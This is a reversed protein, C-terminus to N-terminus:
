KKEIAAVREQIARLRSADFKPSRDFFYLGNEEPYTDWIQTYCYGFMWENDLLIHCTAEFRAYFDDPNQPDSGYGWSSKRNLTNEAASKASVQPNWKFGGFESVWYPQGRYPVSWVVPKATTPTTPASPNLYAKWGPKGEHYARFKELGADFDKDEIYYHSDYVDTEPVRHAYGSTDLVPRTTDMAKAALFLARPPM